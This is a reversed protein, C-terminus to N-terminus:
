WSTKHKCLRTHKYLSSLYQYRNGCKECQYKVGQHSKRHTLLSAKWKFVKGCVSCSYTEKHICVRGHATLDKQSYFCSGCVECCYPRIGEHKNMHTRLQKRENFPQNCIDCKHGVVGQHLRRKHLHFASNSKFVKQCEKCEYRKNEHRVEIHERLSAKSACQRGCQPCVLPISTHKRLHATYNDKRGIVKGCIDCVYFAPKSKSTKSSKGAVIITSSSDTDQLPSTKDMQIDVEIQEKNIMKVPEGDRAIGENPGIGENLGQTLKQQKQHDTTTSHDCSVNQPVPHCAMTNDEINQNVALQYIKTISVINNSADVPDIILAQSGAAMSENARTNSDVPANGRTNFGATVIGRTNLSDVTSPLLNTTGTSEATCNITRVHTVGDPM